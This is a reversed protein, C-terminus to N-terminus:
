GNGKRLVSTNRRPSNAGLWTNYHVLYSDVLYIAAELQQGRADVPSAVVMVSVVSQTRLSSEWGIFFRSTESHRM